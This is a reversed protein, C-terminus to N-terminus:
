KNLSQRYKAGLHEFKKYKQVFGEAKGMIPEIKKVGDMIENQLKLISAMDQQIDKRKRLVEKIEANSLGNFEDDEEDEEETNESDEGDPNESKEKKDKKKKDKTEKEKNELGEHLSNFSIIIQTGVLACILVVIMNRSFFTTIFGILLFVFISRFEEKQMFFFLYSISIFLTFYLVIRNHLIPKLDFNLGKAM